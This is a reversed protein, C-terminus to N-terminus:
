WITWTNRAIDYVRLSSHLGNTQQEFFALIFDKRQSFQISSLREGTPIKLESALGSKFKFVYLQEWLQATGHPLTYAIAIDNPFSASLNADSASIGKPLKLMHLLSKGPTSWANLQAIGITNDSANVRMVAFRPGDQVLKEGRKLPLESVKNSVVSGRKSLLPSPASSWLYLQKAAMDLYLPKSKKDSQYVVRQQGSQAEITKIIGRTTDMFLRGNNSEVVTYDGPPVTKSPPRPAISANVYPITVGSASGVGCDNPDSDFSLITFGSTPTGNVMLALHKPGDFSILAEIAGKSELVQQKNRKLQIRQLEYKFQKATTAVGKRALYYLYNGDLSIRPNQSSALYNACDSYSSIAANIPLSTDIRKTEQAEGVQTTTTTDTSTATNVPKRRPLQGSADKTQARASEGAFLLACLILRHKM